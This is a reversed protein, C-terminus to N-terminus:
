GKRRVIFSGFTMQLSGLIAFYKELSGIEDLTGLLSDKHSSLSDKLQQMEVQSSILNKSFEGMSDSVSALESRLTPLGEQLAAKYEILDANSSESSEIISAIKERIAIGHELTQELGRAAALSATLKADNVMSVLLQYQGDIVKDFDTEARNKLDSVSTLLFLVLFIGANAFAMARGSLLAWASIVAWMILPSYALFLGNM